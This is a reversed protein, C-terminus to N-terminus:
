YGRAKRAAELNNKAPIYNPDISLAKTFDAIAKDTDGKKEYAIGRNTFAATFTPDLRIARTYEAIATDYDKGTYSANGKEFHAPATDDKERLATDRMIIANSYNPDLRLAADFDTLARDYEKKNYYVLARNYYFVAIGPDLRISETYDRLASDYDGKNYNLQGRLHYALMYNPNIRLAQYVEVLASDYEKSNYYVLARNYYTEVSEAVPTNDSNVIFNLNLSYNKNTISSLLFPRQKGALALTANTVDSLVAALPEAKMMNQLFAAAFPSNRATPAGDDAKQGAATSYMVVLDRQPNNVTVAALGREGGVGRATSAFPNNRCADLVVVNVRNRARDIRALLTDVAYSDDILRNQQTRNIRRVDVPLLYNRGEIEVAHGAFWFFGENDPHAALNNVFDDIADAMGQRTLNLYPANIQYGLMRLAAAIDAADNAPKALQDNASLNTYKQNGIVLAYRNQAFVTVTVLLTCLLCFVKKKM